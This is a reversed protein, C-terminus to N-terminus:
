QKRVGLALSLLGAKFLITKAGYQLLRNDLAKKAEDEFIKMAEFYSEQYQAILEAYTMIVQSYNSKSYEDLSFSDASKKYYDIANNYKGESTYKEALVKYLKGSQGFHGSKDYLSIASLYCNIYGPDNMKMLCQGAEVYSRSASLREDNNEFITASKIFCRASDGWKQERKFTNAALTYNDQASDTDPFPNFWSRRNAKDGKAEYESM